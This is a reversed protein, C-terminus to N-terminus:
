QPCKAIRYQEMVYQAYAPPVAERLTKRDRIWDIDMAYQWCALQSDFSLDRLSTYNHFHDNGGNGAVTVFDGAKVTGEHRVHELEQVHFGHVEINRHRLIRLGFMKGCLVLDKRMPAGPVNEIAFPIGSDLLLERTFEILRPYEKGRDRLHRSGQSWAQCPPSAWAFDYESVWSSSLKRVDAHYFWFPYDRQFIIDVGFIAAKPFVRKMGVSAGGGGSFLDLIRM